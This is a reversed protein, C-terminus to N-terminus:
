PRSQLGRLRRKTRAHSAWGTKEYFLARNPLDTLADYHAMHSIKEENRRQETIDEFTLVFGGDTMPAASSSFTSGDTREFLIQGAKRRELLNQLEAIIQERNKETVDSWDALSSCRKRSQGAWAATKWKEWPLKFLEAFRRNSIVLKGDRDYMLLGQAMNNLAADFQM